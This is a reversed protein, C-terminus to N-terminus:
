ESTRGVKESALTGPPVVRSSNGALRPGGSTNGQADPDPGPDDCVRVTRPDADPGAQAMVVLERMRTVDVGDRVLGALATEAEESLPRSARIEVDGGMLARASRGVTTEMSRALSGVAVIAQRGRGAPPM